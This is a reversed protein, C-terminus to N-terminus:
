RFHPLSGTTHLKPQFAQSLASLGNMLTLQQRYCNLMWLIECSKLITEWMLKVSRGDPADVDMTDETDHSVSSKVIECTETFLDLEDFGSM